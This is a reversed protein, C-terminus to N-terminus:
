WRSYVNTCQIDYSKVLKCTNSRIKRYDATIIRQIYICEDEKRVAIFLQVWVLSQEFGVYM